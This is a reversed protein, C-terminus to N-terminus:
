PASSILVLSEAGMNLLASNLDKQAISIQGDSITASLKTNIEEAGHAAINLSYVTPVSLDFDVETYTTTIDDADANLTCGKIEGLTQAVVDEPNLTEIEERVCSSIVLTGALIAGLYKFFKKM